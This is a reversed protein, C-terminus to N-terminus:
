RRGTLPGAPAAGFRVQTRTAVRVEGGQFRLTHTTQFPTGLACVKVTWTDDSTWAASAALSEEGLPRTPGRPTDGLHGTGTGWRGHGCRLSETRGSITRTLVWGEPGSDELRLAELGIANTEFRYTHGLVNAATPSTARGPPMPVQLGLLRRELRARTAADAKLPGKAFAPLLTAWLHNLQGAMDNVGSTIAVVADQEPLVVCYQGFAGDGRYAGHRCRWFQFGYGQEWDSGPNSGNSVQKSTAERVWGEPLM